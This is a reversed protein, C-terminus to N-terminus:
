CYHGTIEAVLCGSFDLLLLLIHMILMYFWHHCPDSQAPFNSKLYFIKRKEM